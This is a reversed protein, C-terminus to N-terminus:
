SEDSASVVLVDALDGDIVLTKHGNLLHGAAQDSTATTAPSEHAGRGPEALAATGISTGSALGSIITAASGPADAALSLPLAMVATAFYPVPTLARGLETLVVALEVHGFGSGGYTEPVALGPLELQECLDTWLQRDFRSDSEIRDLLGSEPARATLFERIMQ